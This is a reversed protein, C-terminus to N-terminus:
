SIVALKGTVHCPTMKPVTISPSTGLRTFEFPISMALMGVAVFAQVVDLFGSVVVYQRSNPGHRRPHQQVTAAAPPFRPGPAPLSESTPGQTQSLQALHQSLNAAGSAILPPVKSEHWWLQAM